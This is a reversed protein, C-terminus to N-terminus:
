AKNLLEDLNKNANAVVTLARLEPTPQQEIHRLM